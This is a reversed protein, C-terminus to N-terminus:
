EGGRIMDHARQVAEANKEGMEGKFREKVSKKISKVSIEGTAGSFAGMMVTNTISSGIVEEAIGTADIARVDIDPEIMKRISEPRPTNVILIGGPKMGSCVDVVSILTPDQVIVYDPEYVQTRIRIKKNSIRLFAMVPAGRREAGFTPFAQAYKGDRFASIALLEAATVSGQGGRGHIRIEKM